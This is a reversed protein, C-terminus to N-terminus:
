LRQFGTLFFSTVHVPVYRDEGEQLAGPHQECEAKDCVPRRQTVVFKELMPRDVHLALGDMLAVGQEIHEASEDIDGADGARHHEEGEQTNVQEPSFGHILICM